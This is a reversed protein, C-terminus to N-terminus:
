AEGGNMTMEIHEMGAEVFVEGRPVFGLKEYFGVAHLQANLWIRTCGCARCHDIVFRCIATGTGRGRYSKKVALRGIHAAGHHLIVRACGVTVGNEIAIIHLAGEDEADLEIHPPVGQEGVFVEVRLALVADIEEKAAIKIEM